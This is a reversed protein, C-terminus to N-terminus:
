TVEVSKWVGGAADYVDIFLQSGVRHMRLEGDARGDAPAESAVGFAAVGSHVGERFLSAGSALTSFRARLDANEAELAELRAQVDDSAPPM